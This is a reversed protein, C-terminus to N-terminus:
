FGFTLDIDFSLFQEQSNQSYNIARNNPNQIQNSMQTKSKSM